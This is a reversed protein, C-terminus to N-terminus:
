PWGKEKEREWGGRKREGVICHRATTPITEMCLTQPKEHLVADNRLFTRRDCDPTRPVLQICLVACAQPLFLGERGPLESLDSSLESALLHSQKNNTEGFGLCAVSFHDM